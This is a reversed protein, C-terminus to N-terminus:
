IGTQSLFNIKGLELMDGFLTNKKREEINKFNEIASKVSLTQM